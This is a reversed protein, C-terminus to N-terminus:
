ADKKHALQVMEKIHAIMQENTHRAPFTVRLRTHAFVKLGKKDLKNIQGMFISFNKTGFYDGIDMGFANMPNISERDVEDPKNEDVPVPDDFDEILAVRGAGVETEIFDQHMDCVCSGDPEMIFTHGFAVITDGPAALVHTNLLKVLPM